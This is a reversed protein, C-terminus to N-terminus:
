DTRRRHNVRATTEQLWGDDALSGGATGVSTDMRRILSETM